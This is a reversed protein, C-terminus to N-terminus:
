LLPSTYPQELLENGRSQNCAKNCVLCRSLVGHAPRAREPDYGQNPQISIPILLDADGAGAHGCLHCTDGWLALVQRKWKQYRPGSHWGAM